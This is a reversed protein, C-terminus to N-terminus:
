DKISFQISYNHSVPLATPLPSSSTKDTQGNTSYSIYYGVNLLVTPFKQKMAILQIYGFLKHPHINIM